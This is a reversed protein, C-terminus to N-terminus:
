NKMPKASSVVSQGLELLIYDVDICKMVNKTTIMEASVHNQHDKSLIIQKESYNKYKRSKQYKQFCQHQKDLAQFLPHEILDDRHIIGVDNVDKTLFKDNSEEFAIVSPLEMTAKFEDKDFIMDEKVDDMDFIRYEKTIINDDMDTYLLCIFGIKNLNNIYQKIYVFYPLLERTLQVHVNNFSWTTIIVEKKKKEEERQVQVQFRRCYM